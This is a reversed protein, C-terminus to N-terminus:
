SEYFQVKKESEYIQVEKQTHNLSNFRKKLIVWLISNKKFRFLSVSNFGEKWGCFRVGRKLIVRLISSKKNELMVWLISNKKSQSLFFNFRIELIHSLSNLAFKTLFSEFFQVKKWYTEIFQVKKKFIVWLISGKKLMISLIRIKEFIIVWQISGKKCFFFSAFFTKFLWFIVGLISKKSYLECFQVKKKVHSVSNFGNKWCSEYFKKKCFHQSVSIISGTQFFSEFFQVKKKKIHSLSDFENKLTVKKWLFNLFNFEKGFSIVWLISGEKFTVWFTSNKQAHSSSRFKKKEFFFFSEFFQIKSNKDFFFFRSLSNLKEWFYSVFFQVEKWYSEFIKKLIVRLISGKKIVHNLVWLSSGKLFYKEFFFSELFQNKRFKMWLISGRKRVCSVSNFAKNLMVWLFQVRKEVHSMKFGNKQVHDQRSFHSLSNFGKAKKLLSEFSQVRQLHSM